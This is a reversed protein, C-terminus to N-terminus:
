QNRLQEWIKSAKYYYSLSTAYDSKVYYCNGLCGYSWGFGKQWKLKESLVLAENAYKIGLDPYNAHYEYCIDCLLIVKNTDEKAKPLVLLMSDLFEKGQKQSFAINSSLFLILLILISKRM